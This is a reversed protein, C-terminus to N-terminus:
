KNQAMNQMTSELVKIQEDLGPLRPHLKATLKLAAIADSDQNLRLHCQALGSAAGFHYPNLELVRRCDAISDTFRNMQFYIMARENWAEAYDPAVRILLSAQAAASSFEQNRATDKIQALKAQQESTGLRAWIERFAQEGRLRVDADPDRLATAVSAQSRSDGILGIGFVAARRTETNGCALLRELHRASYLQQLEDRLEQSVPQAVQERCLRVLRVGLPDSTSHTAEQVLLGPLGGAHVDSALTIALSVVLAWAFGAQHIM